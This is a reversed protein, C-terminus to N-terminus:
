SELDACLSIIQAEKEDVERRVSTVITEMAAESLKIQMEVIQFEAQGYCNKPRKIPGQESRNLEEEIASSVIDNMLAMGAESALFDFIFSGDTFTDLLAKSHVTPM